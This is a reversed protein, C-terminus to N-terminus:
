RDRPPLRQGLLRGEDGDDTLRLRVLSDFDLSGLHLTPLAGANLCCIYQFGEAESTSAALQLALGYQRPDVDAFVSSDHILVNFPQKRRARLTAVMLDFCFVVMQDVGDSGERAISFSFSYGANGVDIGLKGPVGYLASTYEAFLSVAEDVLERRDDLDRKLLKRINIIETSVEDKRRDFRKREEIRAKLSQSSAELDTLGRQLEILADLAGSSQLIALLKQKQDTLGEIRVKRAAIQVRLRDIETKLFETRNRYVQQHFLAIEELSRLAEAKFVAGADKLINLPEDAPAEPVEKSSRRYYELLRQDSHNENVLDHLKLDTENLDSELRRYDDRVNFRAVELKKRGVQAELVVREAELDGISQEDTSEQADKLAKIAANIQARKGEEQQLQRQRSWNLGLLFSVVLRKSSGPQGQFSLLPDNFAAKGLRALYLMVERFSPSYEEKRFPMEPALRASLSLKWDDLSIRSREGQQALTEFELGKLFVSSVLVSDGTTCRDVEVAEKGWLFTIGFSVGNLHPHSLVKDRSVESGLCFQIIRILTTKGLGNTSELEESDDVTDALVVNM